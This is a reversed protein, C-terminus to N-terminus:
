ENVLRVRYMLGFMLSVFIASYFMLKPREFPAGVFNTIILSIVVISCALLLSGKASRVYAILATVLTILAIAITVGGGMRFFQSVFGSEVFEVNRPLPVPFYSAGGFFLLRLDAIRKFKSPGEVSTMAKYIGGWDTSILYELDVMYLMVILLFGVIAGMLILNQRLGILVIAILLQIFALRSQSTALLFLCSCLLGGGVVLCRRPMKLYAGVRKRVVVFLCFVSVSFHGLDGPFAFFGSVRHIHFEQLSSRYLLRFVSNPQVLEFCAWVANLVVLLSLARVLDEEQVRWMQTMLFYIAVYRISSADSGFLVFLLLFSFLGFLINLLFRYTGYVSFVVSSVMLAAAYHVIASTTPLLAPFVILFFWVGSSLVREDGTAVSMEKNEVYRMSELM